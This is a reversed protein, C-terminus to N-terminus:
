SAAIGGHGRVAAMRGFRVSATREVVTDRIKITRTAERDTLRGRSTHLRIRTEEGEERAGGVRGGRFVTDRQGGHLRREWARQRGVDPLRGTLASTAAPSLTVRFVLGRTRRRGACRGGSIGVPGGGKDDVARAVAAPRRGHLDRGERQLQEDGARTAPRCRGAGPRSSTPRAGTTAATRRGLGSCRNISKVDLGFGLRGAVLGLRFGPRPAAGRIRLVFGTPVLERGGPRIGCRGVLEHGALNRNRCTFGQGCLEARM